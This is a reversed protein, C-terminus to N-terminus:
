LLLCPGFVRQGRRVIEAASTVLFGDGLMPTQYYWSVDETGRGRLDAYGHVARDSSPRTGHVYAARAGSPALVSKALYAHMPQGSVDELIMQLLVYNTNSYDFGAGPVAARSLDFAYSLVREPSWPGQPAEIIDAEIEDTLYDALGSRMRLLHAITIGRMGNLGVVVRDPLYDAAADQVNLRGREHLQLIATALYTKSVSAVYFQDEVRAARGGARLTGAAVAHTKSSSWTYLVVAPGVPSRDSLLDEFVDDAYAPPILVLFLGM